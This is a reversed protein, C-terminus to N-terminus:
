QPIRREWTASSFNVLKVIVSSSFRLSPVSSWAMQSSSMPLSSPWTGPTEEACACSKDLIAAGVSSSAVFSCESSCYGAVLPPGRMERATVFFFGVRPFVHRSIHCITMLNMKKDWILRPSTTTTTTTTTTTIEKKDNKTIFETKGKSDPWWVLFICGGEEPKKHVM